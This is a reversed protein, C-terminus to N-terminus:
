YSRHLKIVAQQTKSDLIDALSYRNMELYFSKLGADLINKLNCAGRIPCLPTSCDILSGHELQAIIDGLRLDKPPKALKIGGTRGRTTIIWGEKSLRAIVKTLHNRQVNFQQAIENITIVATRDEHSVYMLVRLSLDTFKNIQMNLM